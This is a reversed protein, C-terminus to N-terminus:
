NTLIMRKTDILTGDTILAYIYMGAALSNGSIVMSGNGRDSVTNAQIQAGQLNYIYIAANVVNAPLYYGITTNQSFPNPSNQALTAVDATAMSQTPTQDSSISIKDSSVSKTTTKSCCQNIQTTLSTIQNVFYISDASIRKQLLSIIKNNSISDSKIRNTLNLIKISDSEYKTSLTKVAEVLIPVLGQYDISLINSNDSFVLDAYVKQLDQALFGYHTRNQLATDIQNQTISSSNATITSLNSTTSGPKLKYTVGELLKLSALAGTVNKINTKLTSDSPSVVYARIYPSNTTGLDLAYSPNTAQSGVGVNGNTMIHIIPAVNGTGLQMSSSGNTSLWGNALLIGTNFLTYGSGSPTITVNQNTGGAIFSLAGTGTISGNTTGTGGNAVLVTGTVNAATGTTNQNLTPVDSAQIKSLISNTGNSRLYYGSTQTGTLANIASQATTVGTGGNSIGIIGTLNSTQIIGTFSSAIVPGNVALTYTTGNITNNTYGIGLNGNGALFMLPAFGSITKTANNANYFAFGGTGTGQQNIFDTEGTSGTLYNWQFYTGQSASLNLSPYATSNCLMHVQGAIDLLANPTTTMGVGVYGNTGNANSIKIQANLQFTLLSITIVFLTKLTKM